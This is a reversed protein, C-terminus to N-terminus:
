SDGEPKVVVFARFGGDSLKVVDLDDGQPLMAERWKEFYKLYGEYYFDTRYYQVGIKRLHEVYDLSNKTFNKGTDLNMGRGSMVNKNEGKGRHGIFVTNGFQKLDASPLTIEKLVGAMVAKVPMDSGPFGSGSFQGIFQTIIQSAGLKTKKSDVIEM